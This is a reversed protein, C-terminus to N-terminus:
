TLIIVGGGMINYIPILVEFLMFHLNTNDYLEQLALPHCSM